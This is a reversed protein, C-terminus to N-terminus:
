PQEGDADAHSGLRPVRFFGDRFDPSFGELTGSLADGGSGDDRRLLTDSVRPDLTSPRPDISPRRDVSSERRGLAEVHSLIERLERALTSIEGDSLELRALRALKLVEERDVGV